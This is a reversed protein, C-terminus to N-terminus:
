KKKKRKKNHLRELEAPSTNSEDQINGWMRFIKSFHLSQEKPYDFLNPCPVTDYGRKRNEETSVILVNRWKDALTDFDNAFRFSPLETINPAEEKFYHALKEELFAQKPLKKTYLGSDIWNFLFGSIREFLGKKGDIANLIEDIREQPTNPNMFDVLIKKLYPATNYAVVDPKICVLFLLAFMPLWSSRDVVLIQPGKFWLTGTGKRQYPHVWFFVAANIAAIYEPFPRMLKNIETVYLKKDIYTYIIGRKRDLRARRKTPKLLILLLIFYKGVHFYGKWIDGKTIQQMKETFQDKSKGAYTYGANNPDQYLEWEKQFRTEPQFTFSLEDFTTQKYRPHIFDYYGFTLIIFIAMLKCIFGRKEKIEITNDDIKVFCRRLMRKLRPTLKPEM